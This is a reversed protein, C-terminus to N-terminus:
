SNGWDFRRGEGGTAPACPEAHGTVFSVSAKKKEFVTEPEIRMSYAFRLLGLNEDFGINRPDFTNASLKAQLFARLKRWTL